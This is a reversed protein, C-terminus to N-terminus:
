APMVPAGAYIREYADVSREISFRALAHRRAAQGMRRARARDCVLAGVARALPGEQGPSVLVGCDGPVTRSLAGAATGVVPLECAMAEPVLPLRGGARPPLVFADFSALLAPMDHRAGAFAAFTVFPAAERPVAREVAARGEGDGALVLRTGPGLVPALERALLAHAQVGCCGVAGVVFAEDPVGLAGRVRARAEPDAHYARLPVGDPVVHLRAPPVLQEARAAAVAGPSSAVVADLARAVGRVAWRARARHSAAGHRTHVLRRVRALVAGPVIALMAELDHTHVVDPALHALLLTTCVVHTPDAVSGRPADFLPLDAVEGRADGGPTLSVIVLDHGRAALERALQLVRRERGATGLGQVVHVIRM